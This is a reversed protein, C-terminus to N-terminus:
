NYDLVYLDLVRKIHSPLGTDTIYEIQMTTTNTRKVANTAGDNKMYYSIMDYVALTLDPPITAYGAAYIILYGSLTYPFEGSIPRIIDGDVVYDVRHVLPTWTAGYDASYFVDQVGILPQEQVVYFPIGGNFYEEKYNVTYDVFTRRCYTKVFASVKPILLDIIADQNTSSIGLYAKFDAKTVLDAM